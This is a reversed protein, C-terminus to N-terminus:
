LVKALEEIMRTWGGKTREAYDPWVLDHTLTLECGQARPVIDITVRSSDIPSPAVAWTFVLRRPREITEYRGIHDIEQGGRRV